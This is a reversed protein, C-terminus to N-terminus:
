TGYKIEEKQRFSQLRLVLQSNLKEIFGETVANYCVLRQSARHASFWSSCGLWFLALLVRPLCLNTAMRIRPLMSSSRLKALITTYILLSLRVRFDQTLSFVSDPGWEMSTFVTFMLILQLLLILGRHLSHLQETVCVTECSRSEISNEYM